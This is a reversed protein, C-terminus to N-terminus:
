FKMHKLLSKKYATIGGGWKTITKGDVVWIEKAVQSILRFDHSVLLMGGNFNNIAGALADICEMDLHNTPEDLLLMNPKELSLMSFIIRSKLGDSLESIKTTQLKGSIGYRGIAKRWEEVEMKKHPYYDIMFDLVTKDPDLLDTSHQHYRGLKLDLHRRLQGKTPELENVILKLLTSKGTGNAGVLAVRSDMDIALNLGTYLMDKDKGSYAFGVDIFSLVPPSLPECKPFDFNFKHGEFVKETLGAAYMKDLIKQKSKAQRVLNSFTGCSAIFQKIHKIDDQEKQYQKMQNVELEAKTKVFQDYNGTYVKLTKRPTLHMINTCVGNLFDQSHSIVVLCYPYDSLYRELWICTELDLHNTPEDLLLLTPRAFLAKALSVRMRWGGSLDSTPKQVMEKSFGLGHLLIGARTEFSEPNIEDLKDYIVQLLPAEPGQEEMVEDALKELRAVEDQGVAMVCDFATKDSPEEEEELFWSDIHDPIPVEKNALVRLFTSKGSGNAGILGYRRGITLEIMTDQCLVQGHAIMSFADIKVDRAQPQSVLVGTCSTYGENQKKSRGMGSKEEEENAAKNETATKKVGVNKGKNQKALKKKAAEIQRKSKGM